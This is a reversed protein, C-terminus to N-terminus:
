QTMLCVFEYYSYVTPALCTFNIVSLPNSIETFDSHFCDPSYSLIQDPQVQVKRLTRYSQHWSHPFQLSNLRNRPCNGEVYIGEELTSLESM